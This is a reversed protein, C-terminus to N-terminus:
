ACRAEDCGCVLVELGDDAARARLAAAAEPKACLYGGCAFFAGFVLILMFVGFGSIAGGAASIGM